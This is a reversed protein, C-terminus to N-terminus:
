AGPLVGVHGVPVLVAGGDAALTIGGAGAQTGCGNNSGGFFPFMNEIRFHRGQGCSAAQRTRHSVYMGPYYRKGRDTHYLPLTMVAYRRGM